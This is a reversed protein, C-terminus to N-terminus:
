QEAEPQKKDTEPEAAQVEAAPAESATPEESPPELSVIQQVSEQLEKQIAAPNLTEKVEKIEKLPTDAVSQLEDMAQRWKGITKGLDRAVQPLKTPGFVLLAIILVVVLEAPGVGLFNM